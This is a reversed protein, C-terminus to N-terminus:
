RAGAFPTAAPAEARERERRAPKSEAAPRRRQEPPSEDWIYWGNLNIQRRLTETDVAFRVLGRDALELREHFEWGGSCRDIPLNSATEYRTAGYMKPRARCRFIYLTMM